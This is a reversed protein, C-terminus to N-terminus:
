PTRFYHRFSWGEPYPAVVDYVAQDSGLDIEVLV